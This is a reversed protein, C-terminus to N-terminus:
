WWNCYQFVSYWILDYQSMGMATTMYDHHLSSPYKSLSPSIEAQGHQQEQRPSGKPHTNEVDQNWDKLRVDATHAPNNGLEVRWVIYHWNFEFSCPQLSGFWVSMVWLNMVWLGFCISWHHFSLHYVFLSCHRHRKISSIECMCICMWLQISYWQWWRM